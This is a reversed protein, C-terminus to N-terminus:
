STSFFIPMIHYISQQSMGGWVVAKELFRLQSLHHLRAHLLVAHLEVIPGDLREDLCEVLVRHTSGAGRPVRAVPLSAEGDVVELCLHGLM